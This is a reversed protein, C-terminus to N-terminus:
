AAGATEPPASKALKNSELEGRESQDMAPRRPASTPETRPQACV